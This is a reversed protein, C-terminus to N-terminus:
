AERSETFRLQLMTLERNQESQMSKERDHLHRLTRRLRMLETNLRTYERSLEQQKDEALHRERRLNRRSEEYKRLIEDRLTEYEERTM